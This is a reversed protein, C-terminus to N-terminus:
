EQESNLEKKAIEYVKVSYMEDLAEQQESTFTQKMKGLGTHNNIYVTRPKDLIYQVSRRWQSPNFTNSVTIMRETIFMNGFSIGRLFLLSGYCAIDLLETM